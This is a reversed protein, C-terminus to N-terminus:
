SILNIGQRLLNQSMIQNAAESPHFGDWFVYGTANSCTGISMANCLLSTEITGTGCCGRKSELFGNDSPQQIMDLLPQYIDFVVHKLDPYRAILKQSTTNLKNNFMMADRNLRLICNSSGFGFLTIAAPLCGIPPLTTVGIRRVGLGYLDCRCIYNSAPHGHSVAGCM